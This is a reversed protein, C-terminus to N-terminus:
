SKIRYAIGVGFDDEDTFYREVKFLKEDICEVFVRPGPHWNTDHFIVIGDDSLLDAYRWDNICANVSHWGDIFLISIKEIGLQKLHARVSEQNFSNEQLTYINKDPNNLYSSDDMDIGLYKISDPKVGLMASTFSKNKGERSIGIEVIAHTMRKKSVEQVLDFDNDSVDAPSFARERTFPAWDQDNDFNTMVPKFKMGFIDTKEESVNITNENVVIIM